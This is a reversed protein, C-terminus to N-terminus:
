FILQVEFFTQQIVLYMFLYIVSSAPIQPMTSAHSITPPSFPFEEAQPVM